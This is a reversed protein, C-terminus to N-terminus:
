SAEGEEIQLRREAERRAAAHASRALIVNAILAVFTVLYAPWLFWAYGGMAFFESM